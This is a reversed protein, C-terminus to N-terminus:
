ANIADSIKDWFIAIGMENSPYQIYSQKQIHECLVLPLDKSSLKEYFVLFLINKGNRSHTSEMRAMNLEFMCFDSELFSRTIICITKRSTQIATVMNNNIDHGPIFDREHICLKLNRDEELKKICHDIVFIRDEDSYSIFADYNYESSNEEENEKSIYKMRATYYMYRLKWRQKYIVVASSLLMATIIGFVTLSVSLTLTTTNKTKPKLKFCDQVLYPIVKDFSNAKSRTGNEYTCQYQSFNIFHQHIQWMLKLSPVTYCTCLLPNNRLDIKTNNNKKLTVIKKMFKENLFKIHNYTLNLIQLNELHSPDFSINSLFNFSLDIHKLYPQGNFIETNLKYIQNHSLSINELKSSQTILYSNNVLYNGLRNHVLYLSVVSSLNLAIWTLNNMTLNVIQLSPPANIVAQTPTCNQNLGFINSLHLQRISTRNLIKNFLKWVCQETLNKYLYCLHGITTSYNINDYQLVNQIILVETPTYSLALLRSTKSDMSIDMQLVELNTLHAIQKLPYNTFGNGNNQVSLLKLSKLPLLCSIPFVTVDYELKNNNLRLQQLMMLGHFSVNNISKLYNFSLDLVKLNGMNRLHYSTLDVIKNHQLNLYVINTPLDPITILNKNSCDYYLEGKNYYKTCPLQELRATNFFYQYSSSVILLLLFSYFLTQEM